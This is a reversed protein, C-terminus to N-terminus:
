RAREKTKLEARLRVDVAGARHKVIAAPGDGTEDLEFSVDAVKNDQLEFFFTGEAGYAVRTTGQAGCEVRVDFRHRGPVAFGEYLTIPEDAKPNDQTAITADDIRLTVKRVPWTRQADYKLTAKLRTRYVADAVLAVKARSTFLQDRLTLFEAELADLKNDDAPAAAPKPADPEAAAAMPYALLCLALLFRM